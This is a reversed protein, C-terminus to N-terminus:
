KRKKKKRQMNAPNVKFSKCPRGAFYAAYALWSIIKACLICVVVFTNAFTWLHECSTPHSKERGIQKPLSSNWLTFSQSNPSSSTIPSLTWMEYISKSSTPLNTKWKKLSNLRFFAIRLQFQWCALQTEGPGWEPVPLPCPIALLSEQAEARPPVSILAVSQNWKAKDFLNFIWFPLLFLSM